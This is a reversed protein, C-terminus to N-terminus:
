ATRYPRSIRAHALTLADEALCEAVLTGRNRQGALDKRDRREGRHDFLALAGTRPSQLHVANREVLDVLGVGHDGVRHDHGTHAAQEVAAVDARGTDRVIRERSPLLGVSRESPRDDAVLHLEGEGAGIREVVQHREGLALVADHDGVAWQRLSQQAALVADVVAGTAHPRHVCSNPVSFRRRTSGSSCVSRSTAVSTPALGACTASAQSILRGLTTAMGPADLTSCSSNLTAAASM